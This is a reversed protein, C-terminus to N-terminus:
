YAKIFCTKLSIELTDWLYMIFGHIGKVKKLSEQFMELSLSRHERRVTSKIHNCTQHISVRVKGEAESM